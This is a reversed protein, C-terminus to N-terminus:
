KNQVNEGHSSTIYIKEKLWAQNENTYEQSGHSQMINIRGPRFVKFVKIGIFLETENEHVYM